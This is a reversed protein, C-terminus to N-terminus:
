KKHNTCDSVESFTEAGPVEGGAGGPPDSCGRSELKIATVDCLGSKPGASSKRGEFEAGRIM